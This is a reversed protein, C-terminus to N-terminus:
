QHSESSCGLQWIALQDAAGRATWGAQFNEQLLRVVRGTRINGPSERAPYKSYKVPSLNITEKHGLYKDIDSDAVASLAAANCHARESWGGKRAEDLWKVIRSDYINGPGRGLKLKHWNNEHWKDFAAYWAATKSRTRLNVLKQLDTSM